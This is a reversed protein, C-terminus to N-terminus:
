ASAGELGRQLLTIFQGAQAETLDARHELGFERALVDKDAGKQKLARNYKPALDFLALMQKRTIGCTHFQQTGIEFAVPRQPTAATAPEAEPRAPTVVRPPASLGEIEAAMAAAADDMAPAEAGFLDPTGPGDSTPSVAAGLMAEAMADAAADLTPAHDLVAGPGFGLGDDGPDYEERGVVGKLVDPFVDRLCLWRARMQLMRGPYDSWPGPKKDLRARRAEEVTFRRTVPRAWGKRKVTCHGGGQALCETPGLEELSELVGSGMIIALGMEGYIAPKGNIVAISQLSQFPSIGLEAGHQMAILCNAPNNQFDRPILTSAAIKVAFEWAEALTTPAAIAISLKRPEVPVLTTTVSSHEPM